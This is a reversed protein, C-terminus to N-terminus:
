TILRLRSKLSLNIAKLLFKPSEKALNLKSKGYIREKFLIQEEGIKFGYYNTLLIMEFLLINTKGKTKINQWVDKKMGRFNASFDHINIGTIFRLFKNGFRSIFRKTQMSITKAEYCGEPGYRNGVVLDYNENLKELIKLMVNTDFSLDTDMSFIIKGKALNYGERLAAGVGERKSRIIVKINGYKQNLEKAALATGDPSSDDVVLIESELRKKELIEELQPILLNINKKENYTPLIISVDLM